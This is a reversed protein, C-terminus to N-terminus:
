KMTEYSKGNVTWEIKPMPDSRFLYPEFIESAQYNITIDSLKAAKAIQGATQMTRIFPSTEIIVKDFKMNNQQFYSSLFQGTLTAQKFGEPTLPPDVGNPTRYVAVHDTREGHRIIAGFCIPTKGEM